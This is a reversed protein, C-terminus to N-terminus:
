RRSQPPSCARFRPTVTAPRGTMRRRLLSPEPEPHWVSRFLDTPADGHDQVGEYGGGPHATVSGGKFVGVAASLESLCYSNTLDGTVALCDLPRRSVPGQKVPNLQRVIADLVHM